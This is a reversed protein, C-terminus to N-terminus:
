WILIIMSLNQEWNKSSYYFHHTAQVLEVFIKFYGLAHQINKTNVINLCVTIM